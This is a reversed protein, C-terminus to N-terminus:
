LWYYWIWIAATIAWIAGALILRYRHVMIEIDYELYKSYIVACIVTLISVLLWYGIYGLDGTAPPLMFIFPIMCIITWSICFYRNIHRSPHGIIVMAKEPIPRSLIWFISVMGPFVGVIVALADLTRMMYYDTEDGSNALIVTQGTFMTIYVYLTILAIGIPAAIKFFRDKDAIRVYMKGTLNGFAYLIFWTLLPFCSTDDTWWFYGLFRDLPACGTTVGSLATGVLSMAVSVAFISVAGLRLKKLIAMTILALGAFEMIDTAFFLWMNDLVSHDRTVALNFFVPILCRTINLLLGLTLIKLGRWGIWRPNRHRSYYMVIGMCFMFVPAGFVGAAIDYVVFVLSDHFQSTCFMYTHALILVTMVIYAKMFDLEKQRGTNIEEKSFIAM